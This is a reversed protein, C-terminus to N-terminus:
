VALNKAIKMVINASQDAADQMFNDYTDKAEDDASDSMTRIVLFPVDHVFAAQGVAAGEMEVCEPSFRASISDRQGASAIFQDGTAVLGARYHHGTGELVEGCAELAKDRLGTDAEFRARFPYYKVMQPETDHFLVVDSVVVDMVGLGEGMAGAIGVNIIATAGMERVMYATCLAANIKGISMVAVVVPCGELRGSYFITGLAEAKEEVEMHRVLLAVEADLAGLIGLRM